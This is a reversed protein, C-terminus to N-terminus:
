HYSRIIVGFPYRLGHNPGKSRQLICSLSIIVLIIVLVSKQHGMVPFSSMVMINIQSRSYPPLLLIGLCVLWHDFKIQSNVQFYLIQGLVRDVSM